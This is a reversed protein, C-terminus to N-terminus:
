RIQRYAGETFAGFLVLDFFALYRYDGKLKPYTQLVNDRFAKSVLTGPPKM